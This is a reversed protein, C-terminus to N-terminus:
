KRMRSARAVFRAGKRQGNEETARAELSTMEKEMCVDRRQARKGSRTM